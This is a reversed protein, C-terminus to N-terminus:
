SIIINEKYIRIIGDDCKIKKEISLEAKEKEYEIRLLKIRKEREEKEIKHKLLINAEMKERNAKMKKLWKKIYLILIVVFVVGLYTKM